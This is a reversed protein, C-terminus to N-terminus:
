SPDKSPAKFGIVRAGKVELVWATREMDYLSPTNIPSYKNCNVIPKCILQPSRSYDCAVTTDRDTETIKAYECTGCLGVDQRFNVNVKM